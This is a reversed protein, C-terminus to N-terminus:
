TRLPGPRPVSMIGKVGSSDDIIGNRSSRELLHFRRLFFSLPILILSFSTETNSVFSEQVGGDDRRSNSVDVSVFSTREIQGRVCGGLKSAM